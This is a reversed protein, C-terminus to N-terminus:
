APIAILGVPVSYKPVSPPITDMRSPEYSARSPGPRSLGTTVSERGTRSPKKVNLDQETVATPQVMGHHGKALVV